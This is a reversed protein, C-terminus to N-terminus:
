GEANKINIQHQRLQESVDNLVLKLTSLENEATNKDNVLESVLQLSVMALVDKKDKIGFKKEFESIKKNILEVAQKINSEDKAELKLPYAGGAIEVKM